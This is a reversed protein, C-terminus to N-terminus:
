AFRDLLTKNELVAKRLMNAEPLVAMIVNLVGYVLADAYHAKEALSIRDEYLESLLSVSEVAELMM